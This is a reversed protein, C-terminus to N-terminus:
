YLTQSDAPRGLSRPEIGPLPSLITGRAETDVGARPGMWGGIWHTSPPGKGPPSARGLRSASWEGGILVSTTFSYSSYM